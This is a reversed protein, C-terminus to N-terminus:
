ARGSIWEKNGYKERNLRLSREEEDGNLASPKIEIGLSRTFGAEFAEAVEEWLYEKGGAEELSVFSKKGSEGKSLDSIELCEAESTDEKLFLSGHQLVSRTFVKQASGCIKRGLHEIDVGIESEFCWLSCKNNKKHNVIEAQIGLYKLSEVIADAVTKFYRNKIEAATNNHPIAVSYTFDNKHYIAMGGTPRRTVDIGAAELCDDRILYEAHQFKGLTVCYPKFSYLRLVPQSAAGASEALAEDRAMNEPGSLGKEKILRWQRNIDVAIDEM